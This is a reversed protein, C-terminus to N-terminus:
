GMLGYVVKDLGRGDTILSANQSYLKLMDSQVLNTILQALKGNIFDDEEMVFAVEAKSLNSSINDQNFATSFVVSPVGLSCREWSSVGAAGIVLDSSALIEAMNDVTQFLTIEHPIQTVLERHRPTIATLAGFIISIHIDGLNDLAQFAELTRLIYNNPDGGGFNVVIHELGGGVRRKLSIDRYTKFEPRLLAYEPGFFTLCTQPILAKYLSIDAGLNQDLLVECEHARDALDDIVMVKGAICKRVEDEWLSCIGYHDIILWDVCCGELIHSTESADQQWRVGLWHSHRLVDNSRCSTRDSSGDSPLELCVFGKSRIHHCLNGPLSRSIFTCSAGKRALGEALTLCRVVHGSGIQYSSDVRFFINSNEM